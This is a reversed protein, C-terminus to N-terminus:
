TNNCNKSSNEAPKASTKEVITLYHNNFIEVLGKEDYFFNDKNSITISNSTLSHKNM